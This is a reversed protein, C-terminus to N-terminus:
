NPNGQQLNHIGKRLKVFLQCDKDLQAPDSTPGTPDLLRSMCNPMSPDRSGRSKEEAESSSGGGQPGAGGEGRDGGPAPPGEERVVTTHM